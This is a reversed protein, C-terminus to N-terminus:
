IGSNKLRLLEIMRTTHEKGLSRTRKGVELLVPIKEILVEMSIPKVLYDIAGLQLAEILRDSESHATIMVISSLDGKARLKRILELGSMQPMTIDCLILPVRTKELFSLAELGNAACEVRYGEESLITTLIERMDQEDEVVLIETDCSTEDIKNEM